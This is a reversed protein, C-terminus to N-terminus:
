YFKSFFHILIFVDFYRILFKNEQCRVSFLMSPCGCPICIVPLPELKGIEPSDCVFGSGRGTKGTRSMLNINVKRKPFPSQRPERVQPWKSNEM